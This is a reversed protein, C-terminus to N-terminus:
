NLPTLKEGDHACYSAARSYGRGCTTCVNRRPGVGHTPLANLRVNTLPYLMKGDNPCHSEAPGAVHGCRRCTMLPITPQLAENEGPDVETLEEADHPCIELKSSTEFGCTKCLYFTTPPRVTAPRLEQGDHYCFRADGEFVRGCVECSPRRIGVPTPASSKRRRSPLLPTADIPCVALGHPFTRACKPCEQEADSQVSRLVLEVQETTSSPEIRFEGTNPRSTAAREVVSDMSSVRRSSIQRVEEQDRKVDYSWWVWGLVGVVGALTLSLYAILMVSDNTGEAAYAAAPALMVAGVSWARILSLFPERCSM